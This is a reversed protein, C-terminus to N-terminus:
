KRRHNKAASRAKQEAKETELESATMLAREFPSLEMFVSPLVHHRQFM